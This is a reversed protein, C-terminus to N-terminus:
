PRVIGRSAVNGCVVTVLPGLASAILVSIWVPMDPGAIWPTLLAALIGSTVGVCIALAARSRWLMNDVDSGRWGTLLLARFESRRVVMDLRLALYACMVATMAITALLAFQYVQLRGSLATALSTPGVRAGIGVISALAPSVTAAATAIGAIIAGSRLPRAMLSRIAYTGVSTVRPRRPFISSMSGARPPRIPAWAAVSGLTAYAVAPFIVFAVGLPSTSGLVGLALSAILYPLSLIGAEAFFWWFVKRRPWGIVHLIRAERGRASATVFMFAGIVSTVALLTLGALAVNTQTLGREVRPAAGLTTWRQKVWGLDKEGPAEVFYDGVYILADQPSSAAVVEVTLGMEVIAAAVEEVRHLSEPGYASIGAVRVRVADIPTDGRLLEAGHIDVIGMPPVALLGRPNLTPTLAQPERAVGDPGAVLATDPEDYVGFPVYSLPDKPLVISSLDYEGVPALYYPQDFVGNPHQGNAVPVNVAEVGRYAQELGPIIGGGNGGTPASVSQGGPGVPGLPEIEFAIAGSLGTPPTVSTYSPRLTLVADLTSPPLFGVPVADEAFSQEPWPVGVGNIKFARLKESWDVSNTGITTRGPGAMKRAQEIIEGKSLSSEPAIAFPQGIQEVRVNVTFPAYARSSVLIPVVPRALAAGGQTQLVSIVAAQDYGALIDAVDTSGVTLGDRNELTELPLLFTGQAALLAREAAPDVALIPSQLQPVARRNTVDVVWGGNPAPGTATDGSDSIVLPGGDPGGDPGVLITQTVELLLHEQLGDSTVVRMTATYLTPQAPFQTLELSPATTSTSALGVWGIPAAIEVNRLGRIAEVQAASIGGHGALGVFNPEVVGETDEIGLSSGAPRVLIDYAGRWHAAIEAAIRVDAAVSIRSAALVLTAVLVFTPVALPRRVVRRGPNPLSAM